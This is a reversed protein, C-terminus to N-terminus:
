HHDHSIAESKIHLYELIGLTLSAFIFASFILLQKYLVETSVMKSTDSVFTTLLNIMGVVIVSTAIKIKLMGSSTGEDKGHSKSIFSHYSGVIIMKVLNAIMVVDIMDLVIIKMAEVTVDTDKFLHYVHCVYSYGYLGLVVVLGFYFFPLLWKVNFLVNEVSSKVFNTNIATM